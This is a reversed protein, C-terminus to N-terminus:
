EGDCDNESCEAASLLLRGLERAQESTIFLNTEGSRFVKESDPCFETISICINDKFDCDSSEYFVHVKLTDDILSIFRPSNKTKM